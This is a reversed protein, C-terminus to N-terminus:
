PDTGRPPGGGAGNQMVKYGDAHSFVLLVLHPKEGTVANKLYVMRVRDITLTRKSEECRCMFLPLTAELREIRCDAAQLATVLPELVKEYTGDTKSSWAPLTGIEYDRLAQEVPVYGRPTFLLESWNPLMDGEAFTLYFQVPTQKGLGNKLMKPKLHFKVRKGHAGPSLMEKGFGHAFTIDVYPTSLWNSLDM